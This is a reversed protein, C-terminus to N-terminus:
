RARDVYAVVRNLLSTAQWCSWRRPHRTRPSSTSCRRRAEDHGFQQAVQACTRAADRVAGPEVTWICEFLRQKDPVASQGPLEWATLMAPYDPADCVVAWERRM